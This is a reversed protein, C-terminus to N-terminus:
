MGVHVEYLITITKKPMFLHTCMRLINMLRLSNLCYVM